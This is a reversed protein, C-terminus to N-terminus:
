IEGWITHQVLDVAEEDPRCSLHWVPIRCVLRDLSKMVKEACDRNWSPFFVHPFFEAAMEATSLKKIENQESQSLVVVAKLPVQKNIAYPSSGKWPSGWAYCNKQGCELIVKDGNIIEAKRYKAWLEAQTTKGTGSAATFILGEGNWSVCSAHTLVMNRGSLYSYFACLFTEMVGDKGFRAGEITYDKWTIDSLLRTRPQTRGVFIHPFNGSMHCYDVGYWQHFAYQDGCIRVLVDPDEESGSEFGSFMETYKSNDQIIRVKVGAILYNSETM